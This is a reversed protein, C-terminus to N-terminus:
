APQTIEQDLLCHKCREWGPLDSPEWEHEEGFEEICPGTCWWCGTDRCAPCEYGDKYEVLQEDQGIQAQRERLAVGPNPGTRSSTGNAKNPKCMLCGSRRNKPRRRKHHPM